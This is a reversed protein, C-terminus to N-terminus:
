NGSTNQNAPPTWNGIADNGGQGAPGKSYIDFSTPNHKGPNEYVYANDWPDDPLVDKDLYPGKWNSANSPKHMLAQLGNKGKRTFATTWKM